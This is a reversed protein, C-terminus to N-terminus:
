PNQITTSAEPIVFKSVDIGTFNSILNLIIFASIAVVLGAVAYTLTSRAQETSKSNGGSLLYRFSAAIFMVLAVMGILTIAVSLVNGILCAFGQITAVDSADAATIGSNQGTCNLKGDTWAEQAQVNVAFIKLAGLFTTISILTKKIPKTM